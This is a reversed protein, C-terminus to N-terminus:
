EARRDSYRGDLGGDNLNVDYTNKFFIRAEQEARAQLEKKLPLGDKLHLRELDHQLIRLKRLRVTIQEDSLRGSFVSEWEFQADIFLRDLDAALEAAARQKKTLPFVEKVADAVQSGAIIAGWVMPYQRWVAWVGISASSAIARVTAVLTVRKSLLDRYNRTYLATAKLEVLKAWYLAQQRHQGGDDSMPM